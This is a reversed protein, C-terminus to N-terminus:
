KFPEGSVWIVLSYRTGKTVPMVEHLSYSPFIIASGQEKLTQTPEEDNWLLLEGGEYDQPDSLQISISLKRIRGNYAKDIHKGYRGGPSNYKTFQIGETIGYLNFGFFRTNMDMIADTLKRYLWHIDPEPYIWAIKSDRIYALKEGATTGDQLALSNGFDIVAKCEEPSLFNNIYAWTEIKDVNFTWAPDLQKNTMEKKSENMKNKRFNLFNLNLQNPILKSLM